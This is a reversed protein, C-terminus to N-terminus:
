SARGSQCKGDMFVGGAQDHDFEDPGSGTRGRLQKYEDDLFSFGEYDLISAQGEDTGGGGADKVTM